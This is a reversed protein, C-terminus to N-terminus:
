LPRDAARFLTGQGSFSCTGDGFSVAVIRFDYVDGTEAIAFSANLSHDGIIRLIQENAGFQEFYLIFGGRPAIPVSGFEILTLPEDTLNRIFIQLAILTGTSQNCSATFDFDGLHGMLLPEGLEGAVDFRLTDDSALALEVETQNGPCQGGVPTSGVAVRGLQGSNTLCGTAQQAGAASALVMLSAGTLAATIYKTMM